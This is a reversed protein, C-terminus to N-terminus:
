TVTSAAPNVFVATSSFNPRSGFVIGSFGILTSCHTDSPRLPRSLFREIIIGPRRFRMIFARTGAERARFISASMSPLPSALLDAGAFARASAQNVPQSHPSDRLLCDTDEGSTGFHDLQAGNRRQRGQPVQGALVDEHRALWEATPHRTVEFWLLQRRGHGLVLFAFLRDFTLTPVICMDIAAIAQAHNRLFTKWSQLTPSGGNRGGSGRRRM